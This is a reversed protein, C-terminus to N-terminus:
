KLSRRLSIEVRVVEERFDYARTIDRVIRRGGRDYFSTDTMIQMYYYGASRGRRKMRCDYPGIRAGGLHRFHRGLRTAMCDVFQFETMLSRVMPNSKVARFKRSGLDVSGGAFAEFCVFVFLFLVVAYKRM